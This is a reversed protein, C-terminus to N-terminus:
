KPPAKPPSPPYIGLRRGRWWRYESVIVAIVIVLLILGIILAIFTSLSMPVGLIEIFVPLRLEIVREALVADQSVVSRASPLGKYRAEVQYSALPLSDVVAFGGSDASVTAVTAGEREMIVTAFPLGQGAEGIVRVRISFLQGIVEIITRATSLRQSRAEAPTVDVGDRFVAFAYRLGGTTDELPVREFIAVGDAGTTRQTTALRVQAAGVPKGEKDTVKVTVDAVPMVLTRGGALIDRFSGPLRRVSFEATTGYDPSPYSIVINVPAVSLIASISIVNGSVSIASYYTAPDVTARIGPLPRNQRDTVEFELDTFPLSAIADVNAVNVVFRQTHIPTPITRFFVRVEYTGSSIRTIAFSDISVKGGARTDSFNLALTRDPETKIVEVRLNALHREPLSKGEYNMLLKFDFVRTTVDRHAGDYKFITATPLRITAFTDIPVSLTKAQADTEHIDSDYVKEHFKVVSRRAETVTVPRQPDIFPWLALLNGNADETNRDTAAWYVRVIFQLPTGEVLPTRPDDGRFGSNDILTDNNADYNWPGVAVPMFETYGDGGVTRPPLLLRVRHFNFLEELDVVQMPWTSGFTYSWGAIKGSAREVIEVFAGRLPRGNFDLARVTVLTYDVNIIYPKSVTRGLEPFFATCLGLCLTRGPSVTIFSHTITTVAYHSPVEDPFYAGTSPRPDPRYGSVTTVEVNRMGFLSTWKRDDVNIMWSPPEVRYRVITGLWFVRRPDSADSGIIVVGAASTTDPRSVIKIRAASGDRFEYRVTFGELPYAVAIGQEDRWGLVVIQVQNAAMLMIPVTLVTGRPIVGTRLPAMGFTENNLVFQTAVLDRLWTVASHNASFVYKWTTNMFRPGPVRTLTVVGDASVTSILTVRLGCGFVSTGCSRYDQPTPPVTSWLTATRWTTVNPYYIWVNLGRVADATSTSNSLTFMFRVDYVESNGFTVTTGKELVFSDSYVVASRWVVNFQYYFQERTGVLSISRRQDAGITPTPYVGGGYGIVSEIGYSANLFGSTPLMLLGTYGPVTFSRISGDALTRWAGVRLQGYVYSSPNTSAGPSFPNTANNADYAFDSSVMPYIFRETITFNLGHVDRMILQSPFPPVQVIITRPTTTAPKCTSGVARLCYITLEIRDWKTEVFEQPRAPDAVMKTLWRWLVAYTANTTMKNSKVTTANLSAGGAIATIDIRGTENLNLIWGEILAGELPAGSKDLAQPRVFTVPMPVDLTGGEYVIIRYTFSTNLALWRGYVTQLRHLDASPQVTFNLRHWVRNPLATANFVKDVVFTMNTTLRITDIRYSGNWWLLSEDNLLRYVTPNTYLRGDTALISQTYPGKAPVGVTPVWLTTDFPDSILTSPDLFNVGVDNDTAIRYTVGGITRRTDLTRLTWDIAWTNLSVTLPGCVTYRLDFNFLRLVVRDRIGAGMVETPLVSAGGPTWRIIRAFPKNDVQGWFNHGPSRSASSYHWPKPVVTTVTINYLTAPMQYFIYENTSNRHLIVYSFFQGISISTNWRLRDFAAGTGVPVIGLREALTGDTIGYGWPDMTQLYYWPRNATVNFGRWSVTINLRPIGVVGDYDFTRFVIDNVLARIRVPAALDTISLSLRGTTAPVRTGDPLVAEVYGVFAGKWYLRTFTLTDGPLIFDHAGDAGILIQRETNTVPDIIWAYTETLPRDVCDVFIAKLAFVRITLTRVVTTLLKPIEAANEYVTVGDYTVRFGYTLEEPVQFAVWVYSPPTAGLLTRSINLRWLFPHSVPGYHEYAHRIADSSLFSYAPLNVPSGTTRLLWVNIKSPDHITGKSDRPVVVIDSVNAVLLIKSQNRFTRPGFIPDYKPGPSIRVTNNGVLAVIPGGGSSTGVRVYMPDISYIEPYRPDPVTTVIYWPNVWSPIGTTDNKLVILYPNELTFVGVTQSTGGYSGYFGGSYQVEIRLGRYPGPDDAISRTRLYGIVAVRTPDNATLDVTGTYYRSTYVQARAFLNEAFVQLTGYKTNLGSWVTANPVRFYKSFNAIYGPWAHPSATLAFTDFVKGRVRYPEITSGLQNQQLYYPNGSSDRLNVKCNAFFLASDFTRFGWGFTDPSFVTGNVLLDDDRVGCRWYFVTSNYFNSVPRSHGPAASDLYPTTTFNYNVNIASLIKGAHGPPLDRNIFGSVPFGFGMTPVSAVHTDDLNTFATAGSLQRGAYFTTNVLVTEWWVRTTVNLHARTGSWFSSYPVRHIINVAALPVPVLENAAYRTGVPFMERTTRPDYLSNGSGDGKTVFARMLSAEGTTINMEYLKVQAYSLNDKLSYWTHVHFHKFIVSANAVWANRAYPVGALTYESQSGFATSFNAPSMAVFDIPGARGSSISMLSTTTPTSTQWPSWVSYISGDLLVTANTRWNIPRGGSDTSGIKSQIYSTSANIVLKYVIIGAYLTGTGVETGDYSKAKVVVTANEWTDPWTIRVFGTANPYFKGHFFTGLSATERYVEVFYWDATLNYRDAFGTVLPNPCAAMRHALPLVTLGPCGTMSTTGSWSPTTLKLWAFRLTQSEAEPMSVIVTSLALMAVLLLIAVKTTSKNKPM